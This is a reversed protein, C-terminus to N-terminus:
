KIILFLYIAFYHMYIFITFCFALMRLCFNYLQICIFLYPFIFNFYFEDIFPLCLIQFHTWVIKGRKYGLLYEAIGLYYVTQAIGFLPAIVIMRCVGGKFFATPGEHRLTSRRSCYVGWYSCECWTVDWWSEILKIFKKDMSFSLKRLAIWSERINGNGVAKLSLKCARRLWTWPTWPWPQSLDRWAARCSHGGAVFCFSNTKFYRKRELEM